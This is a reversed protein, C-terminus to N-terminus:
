SLPIYLIHAGEYIRLRRGTPKAEGFVKDHIDYVGKDRTLLKLGRRAAQALLLIDFSRRRISDQPWGLAKRIELAKNIDEMEVYATNLQYEKLLKDFIQSFYDVVNILNSPATSKLWAAYDEDSLTKSVMVKLFEIRSLESVACTAQCYRDFESELISCPDASRLSPNRFLMEADRRSIPISYKRRTPKHRCEFLAILVNTDLLLTM